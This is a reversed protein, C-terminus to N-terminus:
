RAMLLFEFSYASARYFHDGYEVGRGSQDFATRQMTLLADGRNAGLLRADTGTASRAGIVQSAMHLRIGADGLLRYLGTRELAEVTLELINVPVFNHMVALSEDDAYRIREVAYVPQGEDIGLAHAVADPAPIEELGLVRSYPQRHDQSLDDYLSTLEIPRRVKPSAIQTGVGRKRVLMGRDVLYAIARRVTPRSMGLRQALAIENELRSGAPLEGSEIARELSQAIQYYLPIPSARDISIAPLAPHASSM